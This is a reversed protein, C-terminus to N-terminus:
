RRQLEYYCKDIMILCFSMGDVKPASLLDQIYRNNRDQFPTITNLANPSTLPSHPTTPIPHLLTSLNSHSSNHVNNNNNNSTDIPAVPASKNVIDPSFLVNQESKNTPIPSIINSNNNNPSGNTAKEHSTPHSSSSSPSKQPSTFAETTKQYKLFTTSKRRKKMWPDPNKMNYQKFMSELLKLLQLADQQQVEVHDEMEKYELILKQWMLDRCLSHLQALFHLDLGQPLACVTKLPANYLASLSISQSVMELKVSSMFKRIKPCRSLPIYEYPGVIQSMLMSGLSNNNLFPVRKLFQILLVRQRLERSIVIQIDIQDFEQKNQQQDSENNNTDQNNQHHSSSSSSLTGSILNKLPNNRSPTPTVVMHNRQLPNCKLNFKKAIKIILSMFFKLEIDPRIVTEMVQIPYFGRPNNPDFTTATQLLINETFDQFGQQFGQQSLVPHNQHQHNHSSQQYTSSGSAIALTLKSSLKNLLILKGSDIFHTIENEYLGVYNESTYDANLMKGSSWIIFDGNLRGDKTPNSEQQSQKKPSSSARERNSKSIQTFSSSRILSTPNKKESSQVLPHNNEKEVAELDETVEKKPLITSLDVIASSNNPDEVDNSQSRNVDFSLSEEINIKEVLNSSNRGSTNQDSASESSPTVNGLSGYHTIDEDMSTYLNSMSHKKKEEIVKSITELKDTLEDEYEEEMDWNKKLSEATFEENIIMSNLKQIMHEQDSSSMAPFPFLPSPVLHDYDETTDKIRREPSEEMASSFFFRSSSKREPSRPEHQSPQVYGAKELAILFEDVKGSPTQLLPIGLENEFASAPNKIPSGFLQDFSSSDADEFPTLLDVPLKFDEENIDLSPAPSPEDEREKSM